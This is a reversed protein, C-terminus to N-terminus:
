NIPTAEFFRGNLNLVAIAAKLKLEQTFDVKNGTKNVYGYVTDEGVKSRTGVEELEAYTALDQSLEKSLLEEARSIIEGCTHRQEVIKSGEPGGQKGASMRTKYFKGPRIENTSSM